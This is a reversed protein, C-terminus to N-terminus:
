WLMGQGRAAAAPSVWIVERVTNPTNTTRATTEFRRWDALYENYLDSPYGSIIAMGQITQLRELLRCHYEEDIECHYSRPRRLDQLYPPDCYFLACPGDYRAIISLADDNELFAYKLRGVIAMLHATENWDTLVLKGRNNM